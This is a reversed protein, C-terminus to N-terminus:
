AYPYEESKVSERGTAKHFVNERDYMPLREKPILTWGDFTNGSEFYHSQHPADTIGAACSSSKAVICKEGGHM